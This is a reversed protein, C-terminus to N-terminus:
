AVKLRPELPPHRQDLSPRTGLIPSLVQMGGWLTSSSTVCAKAHLLHERLNANQNPIGGSASEVVPNPLHAWSAPPATACSSLFGVCAGKEVRFSSGAELPSPSRPTEMGKLRANLHEPGDAEAVRKWSPFLFSGRTQAM